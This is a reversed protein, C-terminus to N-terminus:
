HHLWTQSCVGMGTIVSALLVVCSLPRMSLRGFHRPPTKHEIIAKLRFYRLVGTLSSLIVLGVILFETLLITLQWVPTAGRLALFTFATRISALCTRVYALLTRENALDTTLRAIRDVANVLAMQSM